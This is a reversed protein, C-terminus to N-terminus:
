DLVGVDKRAPAEDDPDEAHEVDPEPDIEAELEPEVTRLKRPKGGGRTSRNDRKSRKERVNKLPRHTNRPSSRKRWWGFAGVSTLAIFVLVAGGMM